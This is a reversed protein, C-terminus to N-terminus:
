PAEPAPAPVPEAPVPTPEVSPTGSDAPIASFDGEVTDASKTKENWYITTLKGTQKERVTYRKNAEDAQAMEFQGGSMSVMSTALTRTPDKQADEVFKKLKPGFVFSAIVLAIIGVVVIGGCGIGIWALPGLGKKQSPLPPTEM